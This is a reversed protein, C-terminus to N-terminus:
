TQYLLVLRNSLGLGHRVQEQIETQFSRSSIMIPEQRDRLEAPRVVPVGRLEQQQYKPNSDVFLAVRASDLGGNALLRLTHAGVGWVILREGPGLAQAILARIRRDEAQCGEIYAALGSETITDREIPEPSGTKEFVGFVCPCTVEHLARVTHGTEITRFGRAQMLNSLSIRSFFNIHEVSFEQFPADVMPQYRSADPVELYVRGNPALLEHFRGVTGDLDHIHEMVGTLILFDYPEEPRPVTFVTGTVSAIGHIEHAARTCAFSPDSGVLSHFGRDRLAKLLGGSACGIEFVRSEPGPIFREILEAIERFRTEVTVPAPRGQGGDDYKSLDRYYDDFVAQPPVDDAFGAGCDRCIVVDYGDLLRVGSLQEFRQRYLLKV